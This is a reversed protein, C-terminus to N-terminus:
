PIDNKREQTTNEKNKQSREIQTETADVLIAEYEAESKYDFLKFLTLM